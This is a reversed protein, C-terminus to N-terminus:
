TSPAFSRVGAEVKRILRASASHTRGESRESLQQALVYVELLEDLRRQAVAVRCAEELHYLATRFEDSGLATRALTLEPTTVPPHGVKWSELQERAFQANLQERSPEKQIGVAALEEAPFAQLHEDVKRALRESADTINGASRAALARVLERVELLEDLKGQAVAVREAEKLPFLAERLEGRGLRIRALDLERTRGPRARYPAGSVRGSRGHALQRRHYAGPQGVALDDLAAGRLYIVLAIAGGAILAFPIARLERVGLVAVGAWLFLAFGLAWFLSVVGETRHERFLAIRVLLRTLALVIWGVAAVPALV